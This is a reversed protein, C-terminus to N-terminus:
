QSSAGQTLGGAIAGNGLSGVTDTMMAPRGQRLARRRLSQVDHFTRYTSWPAAAGCTASSRFGSTGTLRNLLRMGRSNRQRCARGEDGIRLQQLQHLKAVDVIMAWKKMSGAGASTGM